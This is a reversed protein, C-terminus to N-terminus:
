LDCGAWSAVVDQMLRRTRNCAARQAAATRAVADIDYTERLDGPIKEIHSRFRANVIGRGKSFALDAVLEAHSIQFAIAESRGWGRLAAIAAPLPRRDARPIRLPEPEPRLVPAAMITTASRPRDFSCVM